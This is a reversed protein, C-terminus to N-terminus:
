REPIGHRVHTLPDDDGAIAKRTFGVPETFAAVVGV